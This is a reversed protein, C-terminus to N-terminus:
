ILGTTEELGLMINMNQIAQGAAGKILNDISSAILAHEGDQNLAYGIDCFNTGVTDKLKPLGTLLRVFPKDAYARSYVETLQDSTIKKNFTIFISSYIGAQVGIVHPTFFPQLTQHTTARLVEIVEPIHQHVFPKYAWVNDAINSYHFDIAAKRGAGTISSYSNIIVKKDILGANALPYLGIIISTPYCGPNAILSSGAISSAFLEPLGYVATPLNQPDKHPVNYYQEYVSADHFRYDASLDIVKKGQALLSPVFEMSVTHPLSLFFIDARAVAAEIDLPDCLLDTKKSFSPFLQSYAVPSPTRSSLYTVKTAPHTLLLQVLKEGTFGTAGLVAVTAKSEAKQM